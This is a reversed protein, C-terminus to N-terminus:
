QRRLIDDICEEYLRRRQMPWERASACVGSATKELTSTDQRLNMDFVTAEVRVSVRTNKRPAAPSSQAKVLMLRACNLRQRLEVMTIEERVLKGILEAVEPGSVVQDGVKAVQERLLEEVDDGPPDETVHIAVRYVQYRGEITIPEDRQTSHFTILGYASVNFQGPGVDEVREARRLPGKETSINVSEMLFAHASPLQITHPPQNPVKEHISGAILPLIGLPAPFEDPSKAAGMLTDLAVPVDAPSKLLSRLANSPIGFNINQGGELIHSVVGVVKGDSTFLPGGSNGPSIPATVQIVEGITPLSRLGSTIGDSVSGQLGLPSGMVVIDQGPKLAASDGLELPPADALKRVKLVALDRAADHAVVGTVPYIIKDATQVQATVGGQVVHYCTAVLEPGVLFGSGQSLTEGDKDLLRIHVVSGSSKAAIREATESAQVVGCLFLGFLLVLLTVPVIAHNRSM